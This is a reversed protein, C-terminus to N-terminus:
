HPEVGYLRCLVRLSEEIKEVAQEPTGVLRDAIDPPMFHEEIRALVAEGAPSLDLVVERRNNPNQRRALLGKTVLSDALWAATSSPLLQSKQVSVLSCGPHIEVQLLFKVERLSIGTLKKVNRALRKQAFYVSDLYQRVKAFRLYNRFAQKQITLDSTAM